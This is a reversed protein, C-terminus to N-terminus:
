AEEHPQKNHSGPISGYFVGLILFDRLGETLLERPHFAQKLLFMLLAYYVILSLHEALTVLGKTRWTRMCSLSPDPGALYPTTHQSLNIAEPSHNTAVHESHHESSLIGSPM